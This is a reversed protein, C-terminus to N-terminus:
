FRKHITIFWLLKIGLGIHNYLTLLLGYNERMIKFREKLGPVINKKTMGGDLFKSLILETNAITKASRLSKLVWEFDASLRYEINYFPAIARKVIVSQHSVRMGKQFSRWTLKKPTSLRRLGIENDAEDIIMTEGYYVDSLSNQSAFINELVDNSYLQDGSNIFWLYDGTAAKIGKNMADYLGKDPESQWYTIFDEHQKIIELTKDKSGGDIIIYEINKYTQNHVSQITKELYKESNYVVTIITIVPKAENRLFTNKVRLGGNIM